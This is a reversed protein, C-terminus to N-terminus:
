RIDFSKSQNFMIDKSGDRGLDAEAALLLRLLYRGRELWPMGFVGPAVRGWRNEVNPVGEGNEGGMVGLEGM